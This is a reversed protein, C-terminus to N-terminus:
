AEPGGGEEGGEEAEPQEAREEEPGSEGTDEKSLEQSPEAVDKLEPEDRSQETGGEGEEGDPELALEQQELPEAELETEGGSGELREQLEDWAKQFTEM